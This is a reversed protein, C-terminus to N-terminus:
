EVSFTKAIEAAASMLNVTGEFANETLYLKQLADPLHELNLTGSLKNMALDLHVMAPPLRHLDITGVLRNSWMTLHELRDPLELLNISGSLCNSGMKVECITSPLWEFRLTGVLLFRSWLIAIITDDDAKQLSCWTTISPPTSHNGYIIGKNEIKEIFLEMLTQDSLTSKDVKGISSDWSVFHHLIAIM